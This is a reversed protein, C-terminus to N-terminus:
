TWKGIGPGKLYGTQSTFRGTKEWESGPSDEVEKRWRTKEGDENDQASVRTNKTKEEGNSESGQSGTVPEESKFPEWERRRIAEGNSRMASYVPDKM